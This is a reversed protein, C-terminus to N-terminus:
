LSQTDSLELSSLLVSLSLDAGLVPWRRQTEAEPGLARRAWLSDHTLSQTQWSVVYAGVHVAESRRPFLEFLESSKSRFVLAM